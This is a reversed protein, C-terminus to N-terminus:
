EFGERGGKEKEKKVIKEKKFILPTCTYEQCNSAIHEIVLMKINM